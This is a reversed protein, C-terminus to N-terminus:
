RRRVKDASIVWFDTTTASYPWRPTEDACNEGSFGRIAAIMFASNSGTCCIAISSASCLSGTPWAASVACNRITAFCFWPPMAPVHRTVQRSLNSEHVRYTALPAELYHIVIGVLAARIWLDYDCSYLKVAFLRGGTQLRELAERSFITFNISFPNKLLIMSSFDRHPGPAVKMKRCKKKGDRLWFHNTTVMDVQGRAFVALCADIFGSELLDDASLVMVYDGAARGVALNWNPAM